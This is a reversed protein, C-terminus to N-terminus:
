TSRTARARPWMSSILVGPGGDRLGAVGRPEYPTTLLHGGWGLRVPVVGAGNTGAYIM